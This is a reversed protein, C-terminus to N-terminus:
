LLSRARNSARQASSRGVVSRLLLPQTVAADVPVVAADPWRLGALLGTRRCAASRAIGPAFPRKGAAGLWVLGPSEVDRGRRREGRLMLTGESAVPALRNNPSPAARAETPTRMAEAEAGAAVFGRLGTPAEQGLLTGRGHFGLRANCRAGLASCSLRCHFESVPAAVPLWGHRERGGADTNM